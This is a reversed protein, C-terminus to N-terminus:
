EPQEADALGDIGATSRPRDSTIGGAAIKSTLREAPLRIRIRRAPHRAVIIVTRGRCAREGVIRLSRDM